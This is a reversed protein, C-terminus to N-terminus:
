AIGILRGAALAGAITSCRSRRRSVQGRADTSRMLRKGCPSLSHAIKLGRARHRDQAFDDGKFLLPEGTAKALAYAFVDGLNLGAPHRGKGYRRFAECAIEAQGLTVPVIEAGTFRFFRDLRERGPERKRGEIVFTAEVRTAASVLTDPRRRDPPRICGSPSTRAPHCRHGLYRAGDARCATSTTASSRTRAAPTTIRCRRANRRSSTSGSPSGRRREGSARERELREALASRVAETLSEGTLKAVERALRDTEADKLSLAM